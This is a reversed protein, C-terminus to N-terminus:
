EQMCVSGLWADPMFAAGGPSSRQLKLWSWDIWKGNQEWFSMEEFCNSCESDASGRWKEQQVMGARAGGKAWSNNPGYRSNVGLNTCM